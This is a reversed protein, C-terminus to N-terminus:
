SRAIPVPDPATSNAPASTPAPAPEVRASELLEPARSRQPMSLWCVHHLSRLSAIGQADLLGAAADREADALVDHADRMLTEAEGPDPSAEVRRRIADLKALESRLLRGRRRVQENRRYRVVSQLVAALAAISSAVFSLRGLRDSTLLDNRHYYIDAAPHLLLSAVARGEQESLDYQLDHAFRPDYIVELLDRVVRGPLDARGVLLQTTVITPVREAPLRRGPGYLGSPIFGARTGPISQALAEHDRLPVLRYGGGSVLGEILDSHLTQTRSVATMLGAEFDVAMGGKPRVIAVRPAAGDPSATTLGYYELVREGLTAPQGPQRAGPNVAGALDRFEQVPSADPVWVMFYQPELAALAMVGSAKAADEDASNIIALDIRENRDLLAGLNGPAATAVLELQYGSKEQLYRNLATGMRYSSGTRAGLAIRFTRRGNASAIEHARDRLQYALAPALFQLVAATLVGGVGIAAALAALRWGRMRMCAPHYCGARRAALDGPAEGTETSRPAKVV